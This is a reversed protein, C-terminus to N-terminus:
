IRMGPRIRYSSLVIRTMCPKVRCGPNKRYESEQRRPFSPLFSLFMLHNDKLGSLVISVFSDGFVLGTMGYIPICRIIRIVV